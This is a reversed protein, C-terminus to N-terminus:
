KALEVVAKFYRASGPNAPDIAQWTKLDESGYITCVRGAAAAPSCSVVPKGDVLELAIKFEAAPDEAVLGAVYCDWYTLRPNAAPMGMLVAIDDDTELLYDFTMREDDYDPAFAGPIVRNWGTSGPKILVKGYTRAFPDESLAPANGEFIITEIGMAAYFVNDQVNTITGPIVVSTLARCNIFPSERLMTLPWRGLRQPVVLVGATEIPIAPVGYEEYRVFAVDNTVFYRWKVGDHMEYYPGEGGFRPKSSVDIWSNPNHIGAYTEDYFLHERCDKCVYDAYGKQKYQSAVITCEIGVHGNACTAGDSSEVATVGHWRGEEDAEPLRGPGFRVIFDAPTREFASAAVYEPGAGEFDLTMLYSCDSFAGAGLGAYGAPVIVHGCRTGAFAEPAIGTVRTGDINEPLRLDGAPDDVGTLLVRGGQTVVYSWTKGGTAARGTRVVPDTELCSGCRECFVKFADDSTDSGSRIEEAPSHEGTCPSYRFTFGKWTSGLCGEWSRNEPLATIVCDAPVGPFFTTLPPFIDNMRPMEGEFVVEKLSTFGDFIRPSINTVTSPIVIRVINKVYDNGGLQGLSTVMNGYLSIPIVVEEGMPASFGISITEWDSNFAYDWPRMNPRGETEVFEITSVDVGVGALLSSICATDGPDVFVTRLSQCGDLAQSGIEKLASRLDLSTLRSCGKLSRLGLSRLTSPLRISPISACGEFASGGLSFMREPLVIADELAECGYFAESSVFRASSLDPGHRLASCGYFARSSVTTLRSGTTACELSRCQLFCEYGISLIEPAEIGKLNSCYSFANSDINTVSTLCLTGDLSSCKEFAYYGIQRLGQSMRVSTLNTCGSFAHMGITEITDPLVVSQLTAKNQFTQQEISVVPVGEFMEPIVLSEFPGDVSVAFVKAGAEDKSFRLVSKGFESPRLVSVSAKPSILKIIRAPDDEEDVVIRRLAPCSTISSAYATVLNRHIVIEELARCENIAASALSVLSRPLELRKLSQCQYIAYFGISTVTDPFTIEELSRCYSFAYSDIETVSEPIVLSTVTSSKFANRGIATVAMGDIESPITIAGSYPMTAGSYYVDATNALTVTNVGNSSVVSYYWTTTGDDYTLVPAGLAMAAAMFVCLALFLSLRKKMSRFSLTKRNETVNLVRTPIIDDLM